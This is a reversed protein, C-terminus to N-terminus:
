IYTCKCESTLRYGPVKHSSVPLPISSAHIMSCPDNWFIAPPFPFPYTTSIFFYQLHTLPAPRAQAWALLKMEAIRQLCHKAPKSRARSSHNLRLFDLNAVYTVYIVCALYPFFIERHRIHTKSKESDKMHHNVNWKTKVIFVIESLSM